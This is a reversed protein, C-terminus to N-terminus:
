RAQVAKLGTQGRRCPIVHSGQGHALGVRPGIDDAHAAPCTLWARPPGLGAALAASPPVCCSVHAAQRDKATRGQGAHRARWDASWANPGRARHLGTKTGVAAVM